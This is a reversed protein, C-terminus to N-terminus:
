KMLTMKKTEVTSGAQLRYFYMGSTLGATNFQVAYEGPAKQEDVLTSVERGLVDYVRLSVRGVSAVQYKITTSPNFPNPFNQSLGFEHPVQDAKSVSTVVWAAAAFEDWIYQYKIQTYEWLSVGQYKYTSQSATCFATIDGAAVAPDYGDGIPMMPKIAATDGQSIFTNTQSAFQTTMLNMENAEPTPRAGWYAQPMNVQVRELFTAWPFAAHSSPRSWATLGVFGTPHHARISDCYASAAAVRTSLNDYEIEADIMLGDIGKTDLIWNAVDTESWANGWYHPVGYVYQYGLLKIGNSHFYSVVSDMGGYNTTAWTYLSKTGSNYYSDGDGMKIVLWTIGESKLKSVITPLNKAGGNASWIQWLWIGKGQIPLTNTAYTTEFHAVSMLTLAVVTSLSLFSKRM